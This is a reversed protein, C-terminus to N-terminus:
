FDPLLGAPPREPSFVGTLTWDFFEWEVYNKDFAWISNPDDSDRM